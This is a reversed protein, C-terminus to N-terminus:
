FPVDDHDESPAQDSPDDPMYWEWPAAEGHGEQKRVKVGELAKARRVTAWAIILRRSIASVGFM